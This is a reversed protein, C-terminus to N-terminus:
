YGSNQALNPNAALAQNPVPYLLNKPDDNPKYAWSKLFVGFRILDTRRVSEWYLERSREALLTKPDNVDNMNVLSMSTVTAAGRATRLENILALAGPIDPSAARMKAEAVMLVVDSYRFLMLWNGSPGNYSAAGTSIDPPYKEVRIGTVELNPGIEIMDAAINPDFSLPNGKRDKLATGNENYQQGIMLGPRQGSKDTVGKYFRGGIRKDVATDSLKHNNADIPTTVGFSNYFDAVTSFGNWGANPNSPTYQNYHLTSFWRANIGSNGSSVGTQNKYAFIGETSNSNTVSFNDFYEAMYTYRGSNIIDNGLTIVKQMDVDGFTPAARNNFAGRNLYCKMLLTRCADQNAIAMNARGGEKLDPLIEELETIIFQVAEDGSKVEPANLLNDGPNRFPYQGYLDLLYYLAFARLFRAEAAQAATPEFALVNTADFNLRNLNNFVDRLSALDANWTHNHVVRWAGNDDWDGGRTPVLSEDTSNEELNLVQGVDTFPNGIDTYAAELLLQTGAEGLAGATQDNTLTGRLDENLKSCSLVTVAFLVSVIRLIKYSSIM